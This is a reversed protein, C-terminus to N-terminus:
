DELLIHAGTHTPHSKDQIKPNQDRRVSGVMSPAIDLLTIISEKSYQTSVCVRVRCEWVGTDPTVLGCNVKALLFCCNVLLLYM